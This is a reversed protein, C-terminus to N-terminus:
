YIFPILKKTAKMYERYADGFESTLMREEMRIRNLFLPILILMILFGALSSLGIPMGVSSLIVGLYVPHRVFRYVGHSILRHNDRIVLTSSYFRRLTSVAVVNITMGIVFLALGVIVQVSLLDLSQLDLIHRKVLDWVSVSLGASYVILAPLAFVILDEKVTKRM